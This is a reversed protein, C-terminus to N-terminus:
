VEGAPRRFRVLAAVGVVAGFLWSVASLDVSRIEYDLWFTQQRVDRTQRVIRLDSTEPVLANALYVSLTPMHMNQMTVRHSGPAAKAQAHAEVRITGHGDRMEGASPVDVRVMTMLLPVDDLRFDIEALVARGYQEAESPSVIDDTNLDVLRLIQEAVNSGPTLDLHIALGDKAVGVRMAQVYEDLTHAGVNGTVALVAVCSVLVRSM